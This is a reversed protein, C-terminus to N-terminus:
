HISPDLMRLAQANNIQGTNLLDQRSYSRGSVGQLCQGKKAPLLSGTNRICNRDGPKIVQHGQGASAQSSPMDASSRAVQTSESQALALASIGLGAALTLSIVTTKLMAYVETLAQM